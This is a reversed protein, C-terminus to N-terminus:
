GGTVTPKLSFLFLREGVLEREGVLQVDYGPAHRIWATYPAETSAGILIRGGPLLHAPALALFRRLTQHDTGGAWARDAMDRAPRDYFPPNFAILDFRAGALPEFLDGELVHMRGEVDHLMANIRACRVAAPNLDVATVAAGREALVVAIAGSGTGMDLARAEDPLPLREIQRLFFTTAFFFEPHFVGPLVVLRLDGIRALDLRGHRRAHLVAFRARFARRALRAPLGSRRAWEAGSPTASGRDTARVSDARMRLM